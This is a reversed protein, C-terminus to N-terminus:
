SILPQSLETQWTSADDSADPGVAYVEWLDETPQHGHADIWDLFEGWAEGLGAYGGHYVTRAVNMAPWEGARVRGDSRVTRAVPVSVEFDFTDAPRRLHHTFWPGAPAVGQAAITRVLEQLTPGMVNQMEEQPVTVHIFVRPQATTQLIRPTELM